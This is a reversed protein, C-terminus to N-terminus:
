AQTITAQTKTKLAREKPVKAEIETKRLG